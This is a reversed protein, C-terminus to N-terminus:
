EAVLNSEPIGIGGDAWGSARRLVSIAFSGTDAEVEWILLSARLQRTEGLRTVSILTKAVNVM